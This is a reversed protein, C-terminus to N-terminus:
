ESRLAAEDIESTGAKVGKKMGPIKSGWVVMSSLRREHGSLVQGSRLAARSIELTWVEVRKMKMMLRITSRLAVWLKLRLGQMKELCVCSVVRRGRWRWFRVM